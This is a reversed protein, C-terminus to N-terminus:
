KKMEGPMDKMDGSMDKMDGSMGKKDDAMGNMDGSMDKMDSGMDKMHGAMEMKGDMHKSDAAAAAFVSNGLLMSGFLAAGLLGLSKSSHTM